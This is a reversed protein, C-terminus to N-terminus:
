QNAAEDLYDSLKGLGLDVTNDIPKTVAAAEPRSLLYGAVGAGPIAAGVLGALLLKGLGTGGQTAQAQQPQSLNVDGLITNGMDDTEAVDPWGMADAAAADERAISKAQRQREQDLTQNAIVGSWLENRGQLQLLREIMKMTSQQM